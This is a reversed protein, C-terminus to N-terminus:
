TTLPSAFGKEQTKQTKVAKLEFCDVPWLLMNQIPKESDECCSLPPPKLYNNKRGKRLGQQGGIERNTLGLGGCEARGTDMLPQGQLTTAEGEAIHAEDKLARM